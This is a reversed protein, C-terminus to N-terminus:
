ARAQINRPVLTYYSWPLELASYSNPYVEVGVSGEVSDEDAPDKDASDENAPDGNAPDENAAHENSCRLHVDSQLRLAGGNFPM